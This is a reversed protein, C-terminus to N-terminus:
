NMEPLARTERARISGVEGFLRLFELSEMRELGAARETTLGLEDTSRIAVVGTARKVELPRPLSVQIAGPIQELASETEVVVRTSGSAGKLLDITVETRNRDSFDWSRVLDGSARLLRHGSPLAIRLQRLEGQTVQYNLVSRTTLLGEGFTALSAQQVLTTAAIENSRKLRPTWSLLVRDATGLVAELRTQKDQVTRELTIATPFEIEADPEDLLLM